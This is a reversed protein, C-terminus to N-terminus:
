AHRHDDLVLGARGAADAVIERGLSGRVAIRQQGAGVTEAQLGMEIRRGIVIGDAVERRDGLERRLRQHDGHMGREADGRQLLEDLLPLETIPM